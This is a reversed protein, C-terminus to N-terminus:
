PISKSATKIAEGTETWLAALKARDTRTIMRTGAEDSQWKAINTLLKNYGALKDVGVNQIHLEKTKAVFTALDWGESRAPDGGQSGISLFNDAIIAVDAKTAKVEKAWTVVQGALGTPPPVPDPGPGPDPDPGPDPGPTSRLVTYTKEYRQIDYRETIKLKELKAKTVDTPHEPDPVWVTLERFYQTIVTVELWHVGPAAWVHVNALGKENEVEEVFSKADARWTLQITADKPIVCDCRGIIPTHERVTDPVLIQAHATATLLLAAIALLHTPLRM